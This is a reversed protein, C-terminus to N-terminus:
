RTKKRPSDRKPPPEVQTQVAQVLDLLARVQSHAEIPHRLPQDAHLKYHNRRGARVRTLYGEQELDAVIRQVARETIGVRQAVERLRVEPEGAICLLVHGHNSLFTWAASRGEGPNQEDKM